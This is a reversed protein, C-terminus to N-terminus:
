RSPRAEERRERLGATAPADAQASPVVSARLRWHAMGRLARRPGDLPLLISSFRHCRFLSYLGFSHTGPSQFAKKPSPVFTRSLTSTSDPRISNTMLSGRRRDDEAPDQRCEGDRQREAVHEVRVQGVPEGLLLSAVVDRRHRVPRAHRVVEEHGEHDHQRDDDLGAVDHLRPLGPQGHAKKMPTTTRIPAKM